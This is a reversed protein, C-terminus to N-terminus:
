PQGEFTVTEVWPRAHPGGAIPMFTVRGTGGCPLLLSTSIPEPVFYSNYTGLVPVAGATPSAFTVFAEIRNANGTFGAGAVNSLEVESTQGSMPHGLQGPRIPGFCAMNIVGNATAGNVAGVFSEHPGIVVPDQVPLAGAVSPAVALAGVAVAISLLRHTVCASYRM